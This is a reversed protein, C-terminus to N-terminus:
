VILQVMTSVTIVQLNSQVTEFKWGIKVLYDNMMTLLGLRSATHTQDKANKELQRIYLEGPDCTILEQIYAQFKGIAQSNISNTALFVLKDQHLELTISIPHEVTEDNYKMANELLENAIFSVASKVEAKTDISPFFTIFYDAMFDASLGNNRWREQLSISSPSFAIILYEQRDPMEDIFDGFKQTM